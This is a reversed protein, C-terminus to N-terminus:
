GDEKEEGRWGPIYRPNGSRQANRKLYERYEKLTRGVDKRSMTREPKGKARMDDIARERSAEAIEQEQSRCETADGVPLFLITERGTKEDKVVEPKLVGQNLPLWIKPM